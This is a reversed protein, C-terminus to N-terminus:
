SYTLLKYQVLLHCYDVLSHDQNNRHPLTEHHNLPATERRQHGKCGFGPAFSLGNCHVEPSWLTAWVPLHLIIFTCPHLHCHHSVIVLHMLYIIILQCGSIYHDEPNRHRAWPHKSLTYKGSSLHILVFGRQYLINVILINVRKMKKHKCLSSCLSM